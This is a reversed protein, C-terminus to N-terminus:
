LRADNVGGEVLARKTEAAVNVGELRATLAAVTLVADILAAREECAVLAAALNALLPSDPAYGYALLLVDTEAADLRLSAAFRLLVSRSPMRLSSEIRSVYSHDYGSAEALLKQSVKAKRRLALLTRPGARRHDDLILVM